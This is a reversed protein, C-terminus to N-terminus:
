SRLFTTVEPWLSCQHGCTAFIRETVEFVHYRALSFKSIWLCCFNETFKIHQPRQGCYVKLDLPLSYGKKSKWFTTVRTWLSNYQGYAVFLREMDELVQNVRAVALQTVKPWLLCKHECTAFIRKAVELVSHCRETTFQSMRLCHIVESHRQSHQSSKGCPVTIEVPLLYGGQSKLFTTVETWLSNHSGCDAFLREM